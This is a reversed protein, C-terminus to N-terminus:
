FSPWGSPEWGVRLRQSFAGQARSRTRRLSAKSSCNDTEAAVLHALATLNQEIEIGGVIGGVALLLEAEEVAGVVLMHIVGHEDELAVAAAQQRRAQARSVGGTMGADHGHQHTQHRSELGGEGAYFDFQTAVSTEGQGQQVLEALEKVDLVGKADRGVANEFM